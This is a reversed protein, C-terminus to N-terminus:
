EEKKGAAEWVIDCVYDSAEEQKMYVSLNNIYNIGEYETDDNLTDTLIKLKEDKAKQDETFDENANFNLDIVDKAPTIPIDLIEFDRKETDFLVVAPVHDVQDVRQRMMSGCNILYSDKVREIFFQHNDGSIILDFKTKRLLSRAQSFNTQGPWLTDGKIVMRHTVLINFSDKDIIEPIDEGFSSGYFTCNV